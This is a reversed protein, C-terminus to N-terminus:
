LSECFSELSQLSRDGEYEKNFKNYKYSVVMPVGRFNPIFKNIRSALMKESDKDGDTQITCFVHKGRLKNALDRFVPKMHTCYGCYNAQLLIIVNKDTDHVFEGDENFDDNELYIVSKDDFYEM